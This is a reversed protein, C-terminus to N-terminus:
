LRRGKERCGPNPIRCRITLCIGTHFDDDPEGKESLQDQQGNASGESVSGLGASLAATYADESLMSRTGFLDEETAEKPPLQQLLSAPAYVPVERKAASRADTKRPRQQGDVADRRPRREGNNRTPRRSQEESKSKDQRQEGNRAQRPPRDQRGSRQQGAREGERRPKAQASQQPKRPKDSEGEQKRRSSQATSKPKRKNSDLFLGDAELASRYAEYWRSEGAAGPQSIKLEPPVDLLLQKMRDSALSSSPTSPAQASRTVSISLSRLSSTAGGASRVAAKFAPRLMVSTLSIAM